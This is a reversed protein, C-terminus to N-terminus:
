VAETGNKKEQYIMHQLFLSIAYAEAWERIGHRMLARARERVEEQRALRSRIGFLNTGRM